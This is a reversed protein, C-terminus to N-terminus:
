LNQFKNLAIWLLFNIRAIGPNFRDAQDVLIVFSVVNILYEERKERDLYKMLVLDGTRDMSFTNDHTNEISFTLTQNTDEDTATITVITMGPTSTTNFYFKFHVTVYKINDVTRQFEMQPKVYRSSFSQQSLSITENTFVNCLRTFGPTLDEPINVVYKERDFVPPNDNADILNM